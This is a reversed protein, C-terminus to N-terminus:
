THQRRQNNIIKDVHQTSCGVASALYHHHWGAAGWERLWRVDDPSLKTTGRNKVAMDKMNAAHDGLFLHAPNVCHRVDCIHLVDMGDPVPGNHLQWSLRHTRITGNNKGAKQINGYGFTTLSGQWLWCEDPGAREVKRWFRIEIPIRPTKPYGKKM